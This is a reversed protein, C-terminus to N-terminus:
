IANGRSDFMGVIKPESGVGSVVAVNSRTVFVQTRFAFLATDGVSVRNTNLTGYYDISGPDNVEVGVQHLHGWRRGVMAQRVNSRHYFGGGYVYAKDDLLHSVETVYVMAPKEPQDTDAHLPTSGTLAHGPEAHTGGHEKILALTSTSSVSPTNIQLNEYGMANLARAAKILTDFNATPKAKGDEVSLCPFSTVGGISVGPLASIKQAEKHLQNLWIGGVQGAYLSDVNEIVRLLVKQRRGMKVAADSLLQANDYSLVTMVEPDMRLMETIMYQPVQVLHGIHGVKMGNESLKKAEWPDVAVASQIGAEAVARSVVPNRGFQKTMFYLKIAQRDAEKAIMSANQVVADLDILYCDSPITGKQHYYLALELLEPNRKKIAELFM